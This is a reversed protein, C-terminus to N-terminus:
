IEMSMEAPDACDMPNVLPLPVHNRTKEFPLLKGQYLSRTIWSMPLVHINQEMACQRLHRSIRSEDESVLIGTLIKGSDVNQVLQQLTRFVLGGGHKIVKTITSCFSNKGLLMFGVGHFILSHCDPHAPKPFGSYRKSITKPLILYRQPPLVSGAAISDTLWNVKIMLANVACGYLFRITQQKKLCIVIPLAKTRSRSNRKTRSTPPSPVDSLVAGGCLKIMKEIEKQKKSSFGSLLFEMNEFLQGKSKVTHHRQHGLRELTKSVSRIDRRKVNKSSKSNHCSGAIPQKEKFLEKHLIEIESFQVRKKSPFSIVMQSEHFSQGEHLNQCVPFQEPTSSHNPVGDVDINSAQLRRTGCKLIIPFTTKQMDSGWEGQYKLVKGCKQEDTLQAGEAKMGVMHESAYEDSYRKKDPYQVQPPALTSFSRLSRFERRCVTPQMGELSDPVAVEQALLIDDLDCTRQANHTANEPLPDEFGIASIEGNNNVSSSACGNQSSISCPVFSCLPDILSLGPSKTIEQSLLTVNNTKNHNVSPLSSQSALTKDNDQKQVASCEDPAADASESLFSTERAFPKPICKNHLKAPASSKEEKWTWGGYWRSWYRDPIVNMIENKHGSSISCNVPPSVNPLQFMDVERAPLNTAEVEISISNQQLQYDIKLDNHCPGNSADNTLPRVDKCIHERESSKLELNDGHLDNELTDKVEKNMFDVDSTSYDSEPIIINSYRDNRCHRDGDPTMSVKPHSIDFVLNNTNESKMTSIGVDHCSGGITADDLGVDVYADRMDVDDLDSLSVCESYLGTQSDFGEKCTQLRAHKLQLAVELVASSSLHEPLSMSQIVEHIVTAESAAVSLEISNSIDEGNSIEFEEHREHQGKDDSRMSSPISIASPTSTNHEGNFKNNEGQPAVSAELSQEFGTMNTPLTGENINMNELSDNTSLHLHFHVANETCPSSALSLATSSDASLFLQGCKYGGAKNSFPANSEESSNGRLLLLEQIRKEFCSKEGDTIEDFPMGEPQRQQLWSPLWAEEESFHPAHFGVLSEM